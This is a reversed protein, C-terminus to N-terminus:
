TKGKIQYDHFVAGKAKDGVACNKVWVQKGSKLTRWHGRREHWRPSAHTGGQDEPRPRRPEIVVTTWDYTPVKSQRIKKEWNARKIPM